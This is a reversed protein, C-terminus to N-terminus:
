ECRLCKVKEPAVSPEGKVKYRGYAIASHGCSLQCNFTNSSFSTRYSSLVKRLKM